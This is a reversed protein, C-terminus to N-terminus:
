WPPTLGSLDVGAAEEGDAVAEGDADGSVAIGTAELWRGPAWEVHDPNAAHGTVTVTMGPALACDADEALAGYGIVECVLAGSHGPVPPVATEVAVTFTVCPPDDQPCYLLPHDLVSGHVSTLNM